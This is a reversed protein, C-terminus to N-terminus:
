CVYNSDNNYFKTITKFLQMVFIASLLASRRISNSYKVLVRLELVFFPPYM